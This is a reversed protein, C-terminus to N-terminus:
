NGNQNYTLGQRLIPLIITLVIKKESNSPRSIIYKLDTFKVICYNM